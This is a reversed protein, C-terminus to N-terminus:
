KKVLAIRFTRFNKKLIRLLVWISIFIDSPLAFFWIITNRVLPTFGAMAAVVGIILGIVFGCLVSLLLSRWMYAWWIQAAREFTVEVEQMRTEGTSKDVPIQSVATGGPAAKDDGM